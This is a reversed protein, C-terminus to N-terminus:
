ERTDRFRRWGQRVTEEAGAPYDFGLREALQRGVWAAEDAAWALAALIEEQTGFPPGILASVKEGAFRQVARAVPSLGHISMGRVPGCDDGTALVYWLRILHLRNAHEGYWAVLPLGRALVKQHKRQNMWFNLLEERVVEGTAPQFTIAPDSGRALKGYFADDRCALVLRTENTPERGTTQIFLDYIEGDDLLMHFLVGDEGFTIPFVAVASQQLLAASAPIRDPDFAEPRVAVRLDVDSYPDGTGRALSGGLWLAAVDLDNWLAPLLQLLRRAQPLRPLRSLDLDNM